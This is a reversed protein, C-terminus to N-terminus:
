FCFRGKERRGNPFQKRGLKTPLVQALRGVCGHKHGAGAQLSLPRCSQPALVEGAGQQQRWEWGWSERTPSLFPPGLRYSLCIYENLVWEEEEEWFGGLCFGM